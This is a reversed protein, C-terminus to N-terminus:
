YKTALGIVGYNSGIYGTYYIRYESNFKNFNPYAIRDTWKNNTDAAKFVPNSEKEWNIGDNSIALGFENADADMYIMEFKDQEYIVSPYLVGTGEWEQSATLIPNNKYKTWNIGDTSLALSISYYPYHRVTYYMFYTNNYKIVSSVVIQYEQDDAVLVPQNNKEWHLGDSSVALGINWKGYEDQFGNYYMKYINDENIIAGPYVSYDDWSGSDGPILVPENQVNHWSIGDNSEAYWANFKASNYLNLYWMKYIGNDYLIKAQAISNPLGPNDNSTLIPNGYFDTWKNRWNVFIRISGTGNGVPTLTLYVDITEDELITVDTEGSYIVKGESNAAEVTLHWSGIPINEFSYINLSDNNVDISTSLTDYNQRALFATIQHVESPIASKTINLAISGKSTNDKNVGVLNENSCSDLFILNMTIIFLFIIEGKKM